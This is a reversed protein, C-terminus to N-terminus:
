PKDVINLLSFLLSFAILIIGARFGVEVGNNTTAILLVSGLVWAFLPIGYKTM